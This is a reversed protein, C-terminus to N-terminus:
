YVGYVMWGRSTKKLTYKSFRKGNRKIVDKLEEKGEKETKKRDGLRCRSMEEGSISGM